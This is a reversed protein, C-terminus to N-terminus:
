LSSHTGGGIYITKLQHKISFSSIEQILVEIYKEAFIRFYQLKPFDCYDCIQDCFPIHIYLSKPLNTM